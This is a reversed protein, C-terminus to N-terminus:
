WFGTAPPDGRKEVCLMDASRVRSGVSVLTGRALTFRRRGAITSSPGTDAGADWCPM